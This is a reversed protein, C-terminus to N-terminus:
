PKLQNWTAATMQSWTAAALQSWFNGGLGGSGGIQTWNGPNGTTTCGSLNQGSAADTAFYLQGQTCASPRAATTGTKVPATSGAASFDVSSISGSTKLTGKFDRGGNVTTQASCLGAAMLCLIARKM